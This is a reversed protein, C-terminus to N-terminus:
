AHDMEQERLLEEADLHHLHAAAEQNIDHSPLLPARQLQWLFFALWLGGVALPTLFDMWHQAITTGPFAPMVQYYGFVLQMLLLMAAVRSLTTLDRKVDRMLLLLFPMVFHFVILAWSVYFWGGQIRPLYWITEYQLNAIWILMFQFFCLYTWIILFTLLLNGLDVLVELSLFDKVPSQDAVRALVLLGFAMASVLQGSAFIPGFITSRFMPQLSMVWDVSAFTITVGYVVLGPGSLRAMRRTLARDGTQDEKRSWTNLCWAIGAWCIFYLAARGWFFPENLYIRKYQLKESAAVAEPDTWIYLYAVGCAIPTFLIALLPLTRMCAEMVRRVIFGWAGGTLHYIMLVVLSGLGIGLFFQYASLYARFFQIPSFFAGIICAVLTGVGVLLAGQQLRQVQDRPLPSPLTSV